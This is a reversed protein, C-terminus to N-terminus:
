RRLTRSATVPATEPDILRLQLSIVATRARRLRGYAASKLRIEFSATGALRTAVEASGIEFTRGGATATATVTGGGPTPQTLFAAVNALGYKALQGASTRTRKLLHTLSPNRVRLFCAGPQGRVSELAQGSAALRMVAPGLEFGSLRLGQRTNAGGLLLAGDPLAALSEPTPGSFMRLIGDYGFSPDREGAATYRVVAGIAVAIRDDPGLAAARAEVNAYLGEGLADLVSGDGAFAEDRAGNELYRVVALRRTTGGGEDDGWHDITGGVAYLRGDPLLALASAISTDDFTEMVVGTGGFDPDPAGAATLRAVTFAQSGFGAGTRGAALVRGDPRVAVAHATGVPQTTVRAVGAEGFGPDLTGDNLYRVVAFRGDVEAAVVVAGGAGPAIEEASSTTTGAPTEVLLGDGAFTTDPEGSPTFRAIVIREVIESRPNSPDAQTRLWGAALIKGDDQVAISSVQTQANRDDGPIPIFAVGDGGFTTDQSGDPSFRTAGMGRAAPGAAVHKGDPQAALGAGAGYGFQRAAIDRPVLATAQGCSAFRSDIAGGAIAQATPPLAASVAVAIAVAVAAILGGRM